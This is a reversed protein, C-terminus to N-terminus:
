PREPWTASDSAAARCTGASRSARLFFRGTSAAGVTAGVAVEVGVGGAAVALGVGVVAGGAGGAGGGVGRGVGAAGSGVGAGVDVGGSEPSNSVM